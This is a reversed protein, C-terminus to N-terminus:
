EERLSRMGIRPGKRSKLTLREFASSDANIRLVTFVSEDGKKEKAAREYDTDTKCCQGNAEIIIDGVRLVPHSTAPPEFGMVLVGGELGLRNREQIYLRVSPAYESIRMEIPDNKRVFAEFCGRAGADTGCKLNRLMKGWLTGSDDSSAPAFRRAVDEHKFECMRRSKGAEFGLREVEKQRLYLKRLRLNDEAQPGTFYTPKRLAQRGSECLFIRECLDKADASHPNQSLIYRFLYDSAWMVQPDDYFHVELLKADTYDSCGLRSMAHLRALSESRSFWHYLAASEDDPKIRIVKITDACNTKAWEDYGRTSFINIPRSSVPMAAYRMFDGFVGSAKKLKEVSSCFSDCEPDLANLFAAASEACGFKQPLETAEAHDQMVIACSVDSGNVLVHLVDDGPDFRLADIKRGFRLEQGMYEGTSSIVRVSGALTGYAIRECSNGFSFASVPSLVPVRWQEDGYFSDIGILTPDPNAAEVVGLLGDPSVRLATLGSISEDQLSRKRSLSTTWKLANTGNADFAAVEDSLLAYRIPFNDPVWIQRMMLPFDYRKAYCLPKSAEARNLDISICRLESEYFRTPSKKAPLVNVPLLWDRMSLQRALYRRVDQNHTLGRLSRWARRLEEGTPKSVCDRDIWLSASEFAEKELEKQAFYAQCVFSAIGLTIILTAVSLLMRRKRGRREVGFAIEEAIRLATPLRAVGYVLPQHGEGNSRRSEELYGRVAPVQLREVVLSKAGCDVAVQTKERLGAVGLVSKKGEDWQLSPFPWRSPHKDNEACYLGSALAGWASAVNSSHDADSFLEADTFSVRDGYRDFAPHISWGSISLQCRVESALRHFSSSLLPSDMRGKRWELVLAFGDSRLPTNNKFLGNQRFCFLVWMEGRRPTLESLPTQAIGIASFPIKSYENPKVIFPLLMPGVADVLELWSRVRSEDRPFDEDFKRLANANYAYDVM